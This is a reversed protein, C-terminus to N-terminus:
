NSDTSDPDSQDVLHITVQKSSTKVCVHQNLQESFYDEYKHQLEEYRPFMYRATDLPIANQKIQECIFHIYMMEADTRERETILSGELYQLHRLRGILQFSPCVSGDELLLDKIRLSKLIPFRGLGNIVGLGKLVNGSLNIMELSPFGTFDNLSQLYNLSSIRNDALSLKRLFQLRSLPILQRWEELHNNELHLVKLNPCREVLAAFDYNCPNQSLHLEELSPFYHLVHLICEFSNFCNNLVLLKLPYSREQLQLAHQIDGDFVFKNLSLILSRLRPLNDLIPLIDEFRSFLNYSLDLQELGSLANRLASYDEAGKYVQYNPVAVQNLKSLEEFKEAVKDFGVFQVEKGGYFINKDSSIQELDSRCYKEIVADMLTRGRHREVDALKLFSGKNKQCQFIKKGEYTGYHKGREPNDWEVGVWVVTGTTSEVSSNLVGIFRIIGKEGAIEIRDGVRLSTDRLYDLGNNEM